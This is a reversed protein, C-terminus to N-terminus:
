TPPALAFSRVEVGNVETTTIAFLSAEGTLEATVQNLIEYMNKDTM